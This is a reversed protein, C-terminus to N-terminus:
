IMKRYNKYIASENQNWIVNIIMIFSYKTYIYVRKLNYINM